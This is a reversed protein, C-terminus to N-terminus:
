RTPAPVSRRPGERKHRHPPRRNNPYPWRQQPMASGARCRGAAASTASFCLVATNWATDGYVDNAFVPSSSASGPNLDGELRTGAATGNTSWLETGHTGNNAAFFLRELNSGDYSALFVFGNVGARDLRREIRYGPLAIM